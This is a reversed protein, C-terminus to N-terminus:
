ISTSKFQSTIEEILRGPYTWTVIQILDRTAGSQNILRL